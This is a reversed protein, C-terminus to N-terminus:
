GVDLGVLVLNEDGCKEALVVGSYSSVFLWWGMRKKKKYINQKVFLDWFQTNGLKNKM